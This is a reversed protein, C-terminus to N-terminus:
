ALDVLLAPGDAPALALLRARDALPDPGATVLALGVPAGGDAMAAVVRRAEGADTLLRYAVGPLGDEAGAAETGGRAGARAADEATVRAFHEEMGPLLPASALAM